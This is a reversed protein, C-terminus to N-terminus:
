NSGFTMGHIESQTAGGNNRQHDPATSVEDECAKIIPESKNTRADSLLLQELYRFVAERKELYDSFDEIRRTDVPDDAQKDQEERIKVLSQEDNEAIIIIINKRYIKM